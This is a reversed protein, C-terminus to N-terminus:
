NARPWTLLRRSYIDAIHLGLQTLNATTQVYDHM